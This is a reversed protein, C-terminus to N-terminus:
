PIVFCVIICSSCTKKRNKARAGNQEALCFLQLLKPLPGSSSCKQAFIKFDSWQGLHRKFIKRNKARSAIKNLPASDNSGDQIESRRSKLENWGVTMRYSCLLNRFSIDFVSKWSPSQPPWKPNEIPETKAIKNRSPARISRMLNWNLQIISSIDLIRTEWCKGWIFTYPGNFHVPFCLLSQRLFTLHWRLVMMKAIKTSRDGIIQAFNLGWPKNPEPSSSKWLTKGYIPM